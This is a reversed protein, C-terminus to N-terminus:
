KTNMYDLVINCFAKIGTKFAAEDIFFTPTHHGPAKAPDTGKPM